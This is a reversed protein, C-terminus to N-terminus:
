EKLLILAPNELLEKVHVLFTVAEKGDIIRHDYSLALYMMPRVVIQDDVVVARKMIKHMGLIGAQPPNLIPTSFLSGFVGGNTITFGGGQLENPRIKGEKARKAFDEIALEISSFSLHDCDKLVPVFLGKETSVAIGIDFYERHVIDDGEIYSNLDPIKKLAHVVAKVFFSMFGLKVGFEKTFKEQNKNRIEIIQSLDVENFTTLMATNQQSQVLREAIVKRINSMKRRSESRLPKEKIFLTPETEQKSIDKLFDDTTLRAKQEKVDTPNTKEKNEKPSSAEVKVQPVELTIQEKSPEKAPEEDTKKTIEKKEEKSKQSVTQTVKEDDVTGIVQGIKAKDGTQVNFTIVGDAPAYLAQNVKDTEIELIEEDTKVSSGSEKIIQGIIVESISEGMAPIKIDTKM